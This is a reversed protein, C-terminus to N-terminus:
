GSFRKVRIDARLGDDGPRRVGLIGARESVRESCVGVRRVHQVKAAAMTLTTRRKESLPGHITGQRTRKQGGCVRLGVQSGPWRISGGSSFSLPSFLSLFLSRSLSLSLFLSHSLSLVLSFSLSLFLALSHSHFFSSVARVMSASLRGIV